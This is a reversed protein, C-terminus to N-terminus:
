GSASVDLPCRSLHALLPRRREEDGGLARSGEATTARLLPFLLGSELELHRRLLAPDPHVVARLHLRLDVPLDVQLQAGAIEVHGDPDEERPVILREVTEGFEELYVPSRPRSLRLPKFISFSNQHEKKPRHKLGKERFKSSIITEM